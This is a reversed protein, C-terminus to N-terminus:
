SPSPALSYAASSYSALTFNANEIEKKVRRVRGSCERGGQRGRHSTHHEQREEGEGKREGQEREGEERQM